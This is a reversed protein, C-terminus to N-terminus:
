SSMAIVGDIRRRYEAAMTDYRSKIGRYEPKSRPTLFLRNRLAAWRTFFEPDSLEELDSSRDKQGPQETM